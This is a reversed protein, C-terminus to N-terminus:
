RLVWATAGAQILFTMAEPKDPFVAVWQSGLQTSLDVAEGHPLKQVFTMKGSPALTFLLATAKAKHVNAVTLLMMGPQQSLPPLPVEPREIFPLQQVSGPPRAPQDCVANHIRDFTLHTPQDVMWIKEWEKGIQRLDESVNLLELMRRNPDPSFKEERLLRAWRKLNEALADFKESVFTRIDAPLDRIDAPLECSAQAPGALLVLGALMGAAIFAIRKM